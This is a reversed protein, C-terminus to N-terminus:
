HEHEEEGDPPEAASLRPQGSSEGLAFIRDMLDRALARAEAPEADRSGPLRYPEGIVVLNKRFVRKKEPVYMPLVPLGTELAIRVAGSRPRVYQGSRVRTGQPFIAIKKGARLQELAHVMAALDSHGRDVGFVNFARLFPGLIPVELLEKKAMFGPMEQLDLALLMLLPDAYGSHNSCIIVPGEPINERGKQRTPFVTGFTVRLIFLLVRYLIRM